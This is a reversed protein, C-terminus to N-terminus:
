NVHAVPCTEDCDGPQLNTYEGEEQFIKWKILECQRNLDNRKLPKEMMYAKKQSVPVNEDNTRGKLIQQSIFHNRLDIIKRWKTCQTKQIMKVTVHNDTNLSSPVAQWLTYKVMRKHMTLATKNGVLRSDIRGGGTVDLDHIEKQLVM